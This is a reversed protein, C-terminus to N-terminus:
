HKGKGQAKYKEMQAKSKRELMNSTKQQFDPSVAASTESGGSGCGTSPLMAGAALCTGLCLSCLSRVNFM